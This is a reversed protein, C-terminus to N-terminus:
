GVGSQEVFILFIVLWENMLLKYTRSVQFRATVFSLSSSLHRRSPHSKGGVGWNSALASSSTNMLSLSLCFIIYLTKWESSCLSPFKISVKQHASCMVAYFDKTSLNLLSEWRKRRPCNQDHHETAIPSENVNLIANASDPVALSLRSSSRNVFTSSESKPGGGIGTGSTTLASVRWSLDSSHRVIPPKALKRTALESTPKQIQWLLNFNSSNDQISNTWM